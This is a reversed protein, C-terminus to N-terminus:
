DEEAQGDEIKKLEKLPQFGPKKKRTDATKETLQLMTSLGKLLRDYFKGQQECAAVYLRTKLIREETEMGEDALDDKLAETVEFLSMNQRINVKQTVRLAQAMLMGVSEDFEEFIRLKEVNEPKTLLSELDKNFVEKANTGLAEMLKETPPAVPEVPVRVMLEAEDVGDDLSNRVWVAKLRPERYVRERVHKPTVDFFKAVKAYDGDYEQLAKALSELKIKPARPM